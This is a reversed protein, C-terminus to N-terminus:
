IPLVTILYGGLVLSAFNAVLVYSLRRFKGHEKIFVLVGIIETIFVWFEMLILNLILYSAFPSAGNLVVNLIGQTLLNIILFALWSNKDRFGFLFFIVGEIALTFFVRLTVLLISRSLLKGATITQASFDLTVISNYGTLYQKGIIQDYSTGNGSVKIKIEKNSGIDRNYFAYSTEWATKSKEGEQLTEASIIAVSVDEPANKMIVILAPPEASNAYTITPFFCCAAFIMILLTYVKRKM